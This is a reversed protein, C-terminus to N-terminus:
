QTDTSGQGAAPAPSAGPSPAVSPLTVVPPLVPLPTATARGQIAASEIANLARRANIYRKAASIWSEASAAGPMRTIEALAGEVQGADLLRRARVLRDAPLPSQTTEQRLVVLSSLERRLGDWWGTEPGATLLKPAITDLALRLEELTVPARSARIIIAIATPESPEFRQRLEGEVYGLPLGRDLARRAAFALLLGEARGAFTSALRSDSDIAALRGELERIRASLASERADLTALTEPTAPAQGAPDAGIVPQPAADPMVWADGWTRYALAMAVLGLVFAALAVTWVMPWRSRRPSQAPAGADFTVETQDM